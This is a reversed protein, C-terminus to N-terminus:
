GLMLRRFHVPLVEARYWSSAVPDTAPATGEGIVRVAEAIGEESLDSGALAAEAAKARMPRDAMAGLGIGASEVTGSGKIVAAISLVSVGKPKVRSVKSFRFEGAAPVVFSVGTVIGREAVIGDRAELFEDIEMESEAFHITARLAVLAVAFDGYPSAALLNGGVTAMNRVAPGGVARAAPAIAALKESRAIQAMTVSAGLRARGASVEISKLSEDTSRVFGTIGIDGENTARVVLTGGGLYAKGAGLASTVESPSACTQLELPM